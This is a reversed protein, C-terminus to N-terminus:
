VGDPYLDFRQLGVGVFQFFCCVHQWQRQPDERRGLLILAPMEVLLLHLLLLHMVILLLCSGKKKLNSPRSRSRHETHGPAKYQSLRGHDMSSANTKRPGARTPARLAWGGFPSVVPQSSQSNPGVCSRFLFM